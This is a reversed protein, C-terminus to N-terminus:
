KDNVDSSNSFTGGDEGAEEVVMSDEVNGIINVGRDVHKFALENL